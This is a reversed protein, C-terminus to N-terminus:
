LLDAGDMGYYVDGTDLDTARVITVGNNQYVKEVYAQPNVLSIGGHGSVWDNEGTSWYELKVFNVRGQPSDM